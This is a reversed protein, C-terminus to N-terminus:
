ASPAGAPRRARKGAAFLEVMKANFAPIDDPNRSTLLNADVVAQEDRVLGGANKLDVQIAEFGTLTRGDVLGATVLLQPGHCIAAVPKDAEFFARAFAVAGQERRLKDPNLVGGPLLLADYDGADADALPVDVDFSKGWDTRDWGKVKDGSPSVVHVTAGADLLAQRPDTFEIQEFGDAVLVAVKTGNLKAHVSM